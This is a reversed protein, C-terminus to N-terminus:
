QIICILNDVIVIIVGIAVEILMANCGKRLFDNSEQVLSEKSGQKNTSNASLSTDQDFTSQAHAFAALEQRNEFIATNADVSLSMKGIPKRKLRM